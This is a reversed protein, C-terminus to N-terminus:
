FLNLEEGIYGEFDANINACLNETTKEIRSVKETLLLHFHNHMLVFANVHPGGPKRCERIRSCFIEWVLEMPLDPWKDRNSHGAIHAYSYDNGYKPFLM